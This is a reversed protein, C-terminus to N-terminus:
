LIALPDRKAELSGRTIGIRNSAKLERWVDPGTATGALLKRYLGVTNTIEEATNQDLLEIRFHEVGQRILDPVAEAGSQAQANYLTNRCGIDATLTHKM